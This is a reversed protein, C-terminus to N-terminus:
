PNQKVAYANEDAHAPAAAPEKELANALLLIAGCFFLTDFFYNLAVVSKPAAVLMPLYVWLVALLITFGLYTAALRAKKNAVLCLGAVILVVGVFYSLFIRGPIWPASLQELPIGPMHEPHLLEEVGYFVSAIGIFIRPLAALRAMIPRAPSSEGRRASWGSMAFALAGSGFSLERLALAWFFRNGPHALTGPLDMTCVFIFFTMGVLAAALRARVLVALSLGACIFGAGVAYVWFTHAPIWRPVMRAIGATVTFHETGFVAIPIAFFLRGFPMIKDVGHKQPLEKRIKILGILFLLLACVYMWFATASLGFPASLLALLVVASQQFGCLLIPL